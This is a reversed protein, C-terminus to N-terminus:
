RPPSGTFKRFVSGFHAHMSSGVTLAVDLMAYNANMLNRRLKSADVYYMTIRRSAPARVFPGRSTCTRAAQQM